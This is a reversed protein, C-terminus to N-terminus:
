NRVTPHAHTLHDLAILCGLLLGAGSTHGIALVRDVCTDLQDTTGHAVSRRLHLLLQRFEPLVDGAVARDLLTASLQTTATDAMETVALAVASPGNTLASGIRTAAEVALWGCLVDDGVPTLGSGRGLMLAVAARDGAALLDLSTASLEARITDARGALVTRLMSATAEAAAVDLTPVSADLTRGIHVTTSGIELSGGGIRVADGPLPSGAGTLLDALDPWTTQMGCPVFSSRASLLGVCRTGPGEPVAAYIAHLGRHVVVAEQRPGDVHGRVWSPAAAAVVTRAPM